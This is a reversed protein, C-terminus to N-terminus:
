ARAIQILPEKPEESDLGKRKRIEAMVHALYPHPATPDVLARTSHHRHFQQNFRRYLDIRRAAETGVLARLLDADHGPDSILRVCDDALEDYYQQDLGFDEPGRIRRKAEEALEDSAFRGKDRLRDIQRHCRDRVPEGNRSSLWCLVFKYRGNLATIVEGFRFRDERTVTSSYYHRPWGIIAWAVSGYGFTRVRDDRTAKIQLQAPLGSTSSLETWGGSPTSHALFLDAASSESALHPVIQQTRSSGTLFPEVGSMMKARTEPGEERLVWEGFQERFDADNVLLSLTIGEFVYGTLQSARRPDKRGIGGAEVHFHGPNRAIGEAVRYLYEDLVEAYAPKLTGVVNPDVPQEM